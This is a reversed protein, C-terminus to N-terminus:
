IKKPEPLKVYKIIIAVLIFSIICEPLLFTGNYLISYVLPYQGKPTYSSFVVVGSLVHSAFRGFMGVVTGTVLGATKKGFFGAIGLMGYAVPYDFLLSVPHFSYKTGTIFDLVGAVAGVLIGYKGGWRYAFLFLPVMAGATISGGMPMEFVRIQKLVLFLAIVIGAEVLMWTNIRKLDIV